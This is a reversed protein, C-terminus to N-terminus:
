GGEEHALYVSSASALVTGGFLWVSVTGVAALDPATKGQVAAFCLSAALVIAVCGGGSLLKRVARDRGSAILEGAAAAAIATSVLLLEGRGIVEALAPTRGDIRQNVYAFGLPVLAIIVGFVFWRSIREARTPAVRPPRPLPRM